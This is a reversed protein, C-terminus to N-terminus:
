LAKTGGMIPPKRRKLAKADDMIPPKAALFDQPKM